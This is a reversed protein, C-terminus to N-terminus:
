KVNWIIQVKKILNELLNYHNFRLDKSNEVVFQKGSFTRGHHVDKYPYFLDLEFILKVTRTM